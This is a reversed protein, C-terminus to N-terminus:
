TQKTRDGRLPDLHNSIGNIISGNVDHVVQTGFISWFYVDVGGCVNCTHENKGGLKM